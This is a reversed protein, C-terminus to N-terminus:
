LLLLCWFHVLPLLLVVQSSVFLTPVPPISINILSTWPMVAPWYSHDLLALKNAFPLAPTVIGQSTLLISSPPKRSAEQTSDPRKLVCLSPPVSYSTNIQLKCM